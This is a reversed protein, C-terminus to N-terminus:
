KGYFERDKESISRGVKYGLTFGARYVTKGLKNIIVLITAADLIYAVTM